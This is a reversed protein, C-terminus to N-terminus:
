KFTYYGSFYVDDTIIYFNFINTFTDYVKTM